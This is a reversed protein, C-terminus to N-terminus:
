KGYHYYALELLKQTIENRKNFIVKVLSDTHCSAPSEAVGKGASAKPALKQM